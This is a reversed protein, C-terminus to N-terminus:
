RECGWRFLGNRSRRIRGRRVARYLPGRAAPQRSATESRPAPRHARRDVGRARRDADVRAAGPSTANATPPLASIRASRSPKSCAKGTGLRPRPPSTAASNSPPATARRARVPRGTVGHPSRARRPLRRRQARQALSGFCAPSSHQTKDRVGLQRGARAGASSAAIRASSRAGRGSRYQHRFHDKDLAVARPALDVRREAQRHEFDGMAVVDVDLARAFAREGARGAMDDDIGFPVLRSFSALSSSSSM